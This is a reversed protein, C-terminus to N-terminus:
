DIPPIFFKNKEKLKTGEYLDYTFWGSHFFNSRDVLLQPEKIDKMTFVPLGNERYVKLVYKRLPTEPLAVILDGEKNSYILASPTFIDEPLISELTTPATVKSLKDRKIDLSSTQDRKSLIMGQEEEKNKEFANTKQMHEVIPQPTNKKPKASATFFYRGGPQVYFLRYYQNSANIAKDVYGNSVSTPDPMSMISKFGKVSDYSRQIVLQVLEPYPNKWGIIVIGNREQLDFVPLSDQAHLQDIKSCCFFVFLIFTFIPYRSM